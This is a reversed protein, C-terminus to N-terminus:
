GLQGLPLPSDDALEEIWGEISVPAEDAPDYGRMWEPPGLEASLFNSTWGAAVMMGLCFLGTSFDIPHDLSVLSALWVPIAAWAVVSGLRVRWRRDPALSGGAILLLLALAGYVPASPLGKIASEVTLMLGAVGSVALLTKAPLFRVDEWEM